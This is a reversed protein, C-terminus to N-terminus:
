KFPSCALFSVYQCLIQGNKLGAHFDPGIDVGTIKEVFARCDNELNQDYSANRKAELEADLGYSPGHNAM